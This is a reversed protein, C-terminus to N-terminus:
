ADKVAYRILRDCQEEATPNASKGKLWGQVFEKAISVELFYSMGELEAVTPIGGGEPELAAVALSDVTWPELAYITFSDDLSSLSKTVDLLTM